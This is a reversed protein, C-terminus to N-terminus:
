QSIMATPTLINMFLHSVVLSHVSQLRRNQPCLQWVKISPNLISCPQRPRITFLQRIVLKFQRMNCM